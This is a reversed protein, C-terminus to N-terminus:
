GEATAEVHDRGADRPEGARRAAARELMARTRESGIEGPRSPRLAQETEGTVPEVPSPVTRTSGRRTGATGLEAVFRIVTLLVVVVFVGAYMGAVFPNSSDTGATIGHILAGLLAGYSLFHITRWTKQGIWKKVYFSFAVVVMTWFSVVGLAVPLPEWTSLGPVLVQSWTFEIYEDAVLAVLHVVTALVAALGISEHIWQLGKAKVARGFVKSSIMLGWVVSGSLLAFAAIGSGRILIWTLSV